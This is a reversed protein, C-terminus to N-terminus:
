SPPPLNTQRSSGPTESSEPSSPGAKSGPAFFVRMKAAEQGLVHVFELAMELEVGKCGFLGEVWAVVAANVAGIKSSPVEGTAPDAFKAVLENYDNNTQTVGLAIQPGDDGMQFTKRGKTGIKLVGNETTVDLV